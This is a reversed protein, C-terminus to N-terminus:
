PAGKVNHAKEYNSLATIAGEAALYASNGYISTKPNAAVEASLTQLDTWAQQRYSDIRKLVAPDHTPLNEYGIEASTGAIYATYLTALQNTPAASCAALAGVLGLGALSLIKM